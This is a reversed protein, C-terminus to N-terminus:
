PTTPEQPNWPGTPPPPAVQWPGIRFTSGAMSASDSSGGPVTEVRTGAVIRSPTAPADPLAQGTAARVAALVAPPSQVHPLEAIGKMGFPIGPEPVTVFAINIRPADMTTPILYEHWNTAAPIGEVYPMQETLALGLGMLAGGAIQGYAQAPNVVTGVDQAIDLQAVRVLGLEVDVDAVCRSASFNFTVHMPEGNPRDELPLTSRQTFSETARFVLGMGGQAVSDLVSGDVDVVHDDRIDLRAPDLDNERAYFALFRAKLVEAARAVAAGSTMTQQQGDTTAAEAMGTDSGSIEVHSIGLASQAIQIAITKFGQGVEAAACEIRAVGDRLTILATTSVPAGESLCVNKAAAVSAIGRTINELRTPTGMGGPLWVPSTDASLEEPLPLAACADLVETVPAPRDQKQQFIWTDGEHLANRRRLETPDMQLAAALRDLNSESAFVPEVVSFGRLSGTMGNNTAVAWAEIRAHPIRYPGQILSSANGVTVMGTNAYPGNELILRAEIKVLSGDRNATHRVWIRSPQRHFRVLFAESRSYVMKVPRETHLALLAGHIQWSLAFRGGFAGGVGTNIVHVREAPLGLAEAVQRSDSHVWQTAGIITVGGRGDPTALGGDLGLFSHDQRATTYEGEVSVEGVADPDGATYSVHRYLRGADRAELDDIMPPLPEYEVEIAACARRALEPDEAAVLAVAQGVFNVETDALVPQDRLIVGTRNDAVDWAGLVAHVGPMQRAASLDIRIIRAKAHPSRLTAGWLMGEARVDPAFEYEGRAKAVAEPRLRPSGVGIAAADLLPRESM